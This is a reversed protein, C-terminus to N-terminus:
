LFREFERPFSKKKPSSQPKGKPPAFFREKRLRKLGKRGFPKPYFKGFKFNKSNTKWM